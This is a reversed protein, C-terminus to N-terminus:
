CFDQLLTLLLLQMPISSPPKTLCYLLSAPLPLAASYRPLLAPLFPRNPAAGVTQQWGWLPLCEVWWWQSTFVFCCGTVVQAPCFHFRASHFLVLDIRSLFALLLWILTFVVVSQFLVSSLQTHTFGLSRSVKHGQFIETETSLLWQLLTQLWTILVQNSGSIWSSGSKYGSAWLKVAFVIVWHNM